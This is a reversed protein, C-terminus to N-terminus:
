ANIGRERKEAHQRCYYRGTDPDYAWDGTDYLPVLCDACRAVQDTEGDDEVRGADTVTAREVKAAHGTEDRHEGADGAAANLLKADGTWDCETCVARHKM